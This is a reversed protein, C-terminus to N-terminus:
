VEFSAEIPDFTTGFIVGISSFFPVPKTGAATLSPGLEQYLPRWPIIGGHRVTVAEYSEAGIQAFGLNLDLPGQPM